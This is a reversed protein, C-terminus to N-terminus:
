AARAVQQRLLQEYQVPSVYGLTSHRREANYWTEIFAAVARHAEPRTRFDATALLEHELTSFFSEAVANDWCDGRRSMSQQVGHAALVARYEQSAYQAGRDTHHLLGAAPQRTRLAQQLAALPLATALTAGTAWGVVRRTALDLLVALYLWGERTPIYTLDGCWARDPGPHDAVAFRRGLLNPAVPEAHASDTTRVVKRCRRAVLGDERMLRAVRKQAVALGTAKLEQHVRPAGYRGQSKRHAARVHVRLREDAVAHASPPASPRAQAEYFGSASVGLAQCMLRVPFRRRHAEIAAYKDSV